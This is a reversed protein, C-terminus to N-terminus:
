GNEILCRLSEVVVKRGAIVSYLIEGSPLRHRRAEHYVGGVEEMLLRLSALDWLRLNWEVTADFAGSAASSQSYCTFIMRSQPHASLISQLIQGEDGIKKFGYPASVAILPQVPTVDALRSLAAGDLLAGRGYTACVRSGLSLAPHDIVSVIPHGRVATRYSM